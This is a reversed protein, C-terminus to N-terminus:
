NAFVTAVIPAIDNRLAEMRAAAVEPSQYRATLGAAATAEAYGDSAAAAEIADILQAAIDNPIGVPAYIMIPGSWDIAPLGAEELTPIHPFNPDRESNLVALPKIEAEYGSASQLGAVTFEVDGAILAGRALAGGNFPIDRASAGNATLLAFGGLTQFSGRGAHAWKLDDSNAKAFEVLENLSSFPSSAPVMVATELRGIGGLLVFDNQSNITSKEGDILEKSIMTGANTVLITYGDPNADAVERAAASGAAGPKNVVIVPQGLQERLGESILRAYTDNGGGPAFGVLVNLPKEPYEAMAMPAAVISAAIAVATTLIMRRGTVCSHKREM